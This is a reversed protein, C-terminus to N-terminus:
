AKKGCQICFILGQELTAGCNICFNSDLVKIEPLIRERIIEREKNDQGCQNCIESVHNLIARCNVCFNTALIQIPQYVPPSVSSTPSTETIKQGCGPCFKQNPYLLTGCQVCLNQSM